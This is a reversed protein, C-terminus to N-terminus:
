LHHLANLLNDDYCYKQRQIVESLQTKHLVVIYKFSFTSVTMVFHDDDKQIRQYEGITVNTISGSRQGNRILIRMCLWNRTNVFDKLTQVGEDIRKFSM